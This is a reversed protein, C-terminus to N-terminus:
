KRPCLQTRLTFRAIRASTENELEMKMIAQYITFNPALPSLPHRRAATVASVSTIDLLYIIKCDESKTMHVQNLNVLLAKMTQINIAPPDPSPKANPALVPVNSKLKATESQKAINDIM